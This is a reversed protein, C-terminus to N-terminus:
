DSERLQCLHEKIRDKLDYRLFWYFPKWLFPAFPLLILAIIKAGLTWPRHNAM